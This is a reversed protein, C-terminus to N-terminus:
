ILSLIIVKDSSEDRFRSYIDVDNHLDVADSMDDVTDKSGENDAHTRAIM